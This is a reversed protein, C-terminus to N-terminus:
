AVVSSLCAEIDFGTAAGNVADFIREFHVRDAIAREFIALYQQKTLHMDLPMLREGAFEGLMEIKHTSVPCFLFPCRAVIAAMVEHFKGTVLLRSSRLKNVTIHWNERTIDITTPEALAKLAMRDKDIGAVRAHQNWYFGGYVIGQDAMPSLPPQDRSSLDPALHLPGKYFKQLARYSEHDRTVVLAAHQLKEESEPGMHQWLTNILCVKKHRHKEIFDMLFVAMPQDHHVSGEGNIVIVDSQEILREDILPERKEYMFSNGFFSATIEWDLREMTKFIQGMVAASGFHFRSTDNLIAVRTM